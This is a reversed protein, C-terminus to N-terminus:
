PVPLAFVSSQFHPNQPLTIEMGRRLFGAFQARYKLKHDSIIRKAQPIDFIPKQLVPDVNAVFSHPEPLVLKSRQKNALNAAVLHVLETAIAM